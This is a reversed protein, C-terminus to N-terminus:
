YHKLREEATEIDREPTKQTKKIIAHLLVITQEDIKALFIRYQKHYKIRLEWLQKTGSMRRLYQTPLHFGYLRLYSIVEFIKDRAQRDEGHIFDRVPERGSLTTFFRIDFM